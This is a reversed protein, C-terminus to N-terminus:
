VVIAERVIAAFGLGLSTVKPSIKDADGLDMIVVHDENRCILTKLAFQWRWVATAPSTISAAFRILALRARISIITLGDPPM